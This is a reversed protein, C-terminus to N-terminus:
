IMCHPYKWYNTHTHALYRKLLMKGSYKDRQRGQKGFQTIIYVIFMGPFYVDCTCFVSCSIHIFNFLYNLQYLKILESVALTSNSFLLIYEWLDLIKSIFIINNQKKTNHPNFFVYHQYAKSFLYKWFRWLCNTSCECIKFSFLLKIRM